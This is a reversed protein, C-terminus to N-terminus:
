SKYDTKIIPVPFTQGKKDEVILVDPNVRLVKVRDGSYGSVKDKKASSTITETLTIEM